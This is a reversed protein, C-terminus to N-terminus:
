HGHSTGGGSSSGGSPLPRRCSGSNYKLWVIGSQRFVEKEWEALSRCYRCGNGQSPGNALYDDLHRRVHEVWEYEATSTNAGAVADLPVLRVADFVPLVFYSFHTAPVSRAEVDSIAGFPKAAAAWTIKGGESFLASPIEGDCRCVSACGLVNYEDKIEGLLPFEGSMDDDDGESALHFGDFWKSWRGAEFFFWTQDPRNLRGLVEKMKEPSPNEGAFRNLVVSLGDASLVSPLSLTRACVHLSFIESNDFTNESRRPLPSWSQYSSYSELLGNHRLHFWCWDRGDIANYFQRDLLIHGAAACYFEINDPAAAVGDAIARSLEDAYERWAGEYPEPYPDGGGSGGDYLEVVDDVHRRLIRSFDDNDVAGNRRAADSAARIADLPGLLALRRQAMVIERCRKEDGAVLAKVHEVNLRGIANLLSMQTKAAALAAADGANQLRNRARVALFVDANMLVLICLAAIAILLCAAIQGSRQKM